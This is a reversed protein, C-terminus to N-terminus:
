NPYIDIETYQHDERKLFKIELKGDKVYAKTGKRKVPSPLLIKKQDQQNPYHLLYLHHNTHQIKINKKQEDSIPLTVYVFENTEFVDPAHEQKKKHENSSFTPSLFPFNAPFNAHFVENMVQNVYDEVDKANMKKMMDHFNQSQFFQNWPFM